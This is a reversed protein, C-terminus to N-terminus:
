WLPGHGFATSVQVAADVLGVYRRFELRNAPDGVAVPRGEEDLELEPRGFADVIPEGDEDVAQEYVRLLLENARQLMRSGIGTEITNGYFQETGFARTIYTIGSEPDTFRIQEAEPVNVEGSISGDLWIRMKNAL